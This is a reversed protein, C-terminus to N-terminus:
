VDRREKYFQYLQSLFAGFVYCLITYQWTCGLANSVFAMCTVAILHAIWYGM